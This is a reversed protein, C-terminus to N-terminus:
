EEAAPPNKRHRVREANGPGGNPAPTLMGLEVEEDDFVVSLRLKGGLAGIYKTLTQVRMDEGHEFKSLTPQRVHLAHALDQQTVGRKERLEALRLVTRTLAEYEAVLAKEAPTKAGLDAFFDHHGSM